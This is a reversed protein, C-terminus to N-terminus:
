GCGEDINEPRPRPAGEARFLRNGKAVRNVAADLLDLALVAMGIHSLGIVRTHGRHLLTQVAMVVDDFLVGPDLLLMFIVVRFCGRGPFFDIIHGFMDQEIMLPVDVTLDGTLFAVSLNLVILAQRVLFPAHPHAQFAVIFAIGVDVAPQCAM